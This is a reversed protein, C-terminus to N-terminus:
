YRVVEAKHNSKNQTALISKSSEILHTSRAELGFKDRIVKQDNAIQSNNKKSIEAMTKFDSLGEFPHVTLENQKLFEWTPNVIQKHQVTIHNKVFVTTGCYIGMLTNGIAQQRNHAMIQFEATGIFQLFEDPTLFADFFEVNDELNLQKIKQELEIKYDRALNYAVPLILNYDKIDTKTSLVELIEIHNNSRDGSNGVIIRKKKESLALVNIDGYLGPYPYAFYYSDIEGFNDKFLTIDGSIPTHISRIKTTPFADVQNNKIPNYLDGGWICWAVHKHDGFKNVINYQWPRFLGHMFIAAVRKSSIIESLKLGDANKDFLHADPHQEFDVNFHAITQQKEVYLIHKQGTTSNVTKLLDALTQAYISNYCFHVFTGSDNQNEILPLFKKYQERRSYPKVEEKSFIREDLNDKEMIIQSLVEKVSEQDFVNAFYCKDDHKKSFEQLSYPNDPYILLLALGANAYDYLKGGMIYPTAIEDSNVSLGVDGVAMNAQIQANSVPGFFKYDLETNLSNIYEDFVQVKGQIVLAFQKAIEPNKEFVDFIFTLDKYVGDFKQLGVVSGTGAYYLIIKGQAKAKSAFDAIEPQIQTPPQEIFGNEILYFKDGNFPAKLETHLRKAIKKMGTSITIVVDALQMVKLEDEKQKQFEKPDAKRIQPHIHIFDRFDSVWTISDGLEKKVIHAIFHPLLPPSSTVITPINYTQLFETCFDEITLDPKSKQKELFLPNIIHVKPHMSPAERDAVMKALIVLYVDYGNEAFFNTLTYARISHGVRGEDFPPYDQTIFVMSKPKVVAVEENSFSQVKHIAALKPSLEPNGKLIEIVKLDQEDAWFTTENKVLLWSEITRVMLWKAFETKIPLEEQGSIPMLFPLPVHMNQKGFATLDVFKQIIDEAQDRKGLGLLTRILCFVVSVSNNGANYLEILRHAAEILYHTKKNSTFVGDNNNETIEESAIIYNLATFYSEHEPSNSLYDWSFMSTAAWSMTQFKSRWLGNDPKEFSLDENLIWDNKLHTDIKSEHVAVLTGSTTPVQNSFPVLLEGAPLYQFCSYGYSNLINNIADYNELDFSVLLTAQSTNLTEKAGELVLHESGNTGIKIVDFTHENSSSHWADLSTPSIQDGVNDSLKSLEPIANQEWFVEREKDAVISRVVDLHDFKNHKKSLELYNRAIVDFEFAVVNGKSGVKSAALLAFVGFGAGVELYNMNPKLYKRVFQIDSKHWDAQEFLVYPTLLSFDKPTSIVVGDKTTINISNLHYRM